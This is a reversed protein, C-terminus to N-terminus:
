VCRNVSLSDYNSTVFPFVTSVKPVTFLYNYIAILVLPFHFQIHQYDYITLTYYIGFDLISGFRLYNYIMQVQRKYVDRVEFTGFGVLQVKDGAVLADTVSSVVAAIAKEADKKSLESKEAVQAILEAKTM